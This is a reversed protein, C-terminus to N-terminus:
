VCGDFLCNPEGYQLQRRTCELVFFFMCVYYFVCYKYDFMKRPQLRLILWLTPLLIM